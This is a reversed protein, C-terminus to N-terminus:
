LKKLLNNEYETVYYLSDFRTNAVLSRLLSTNRYNIYRPVLSYIFEKINKAKDYVELPVLPKSPDTTDSQGYLIEKM